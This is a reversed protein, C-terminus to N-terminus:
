GLGKKRKKRVKTIMGLLLCLHSFLQINLYSDSLLCQLKKRMRHMPVSGTLQNMLQCELLVYSVFALVDYVALKGAL